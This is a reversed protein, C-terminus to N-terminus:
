KNEWNTVDDNTGELGDAGCSYLDFDKNHVGPCKYSYPKGWPDKTVDKKMYPGKWNKLTVPANRLANLGEDTAPYRGNDLEFTDLALSLNEIQLKAASTRAEESKGVLRPLVVAALIGIITVVLMIEILTFGTSIKRFNTVDRLPLTFGRNRKNNM